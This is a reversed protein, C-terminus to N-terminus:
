SILRLAASRIAALDGPASTGRSLVRLGIVLSMLSTATEEPDITRPIRDQTQGRRIMESFFAEVAGLSEQVISKVSDPQHPLELATNVM